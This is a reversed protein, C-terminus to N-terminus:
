FQSDMFIPRPLVKGDKNKVEVYADLTNFYFYEKALEYKKDAVTMGDEIEEESLDKKTIGMQKAM